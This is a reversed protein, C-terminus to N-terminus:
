RPDWEIIAQLSMDDQEPYKGLNANFGMRRISLTFYEREKAKGIKKWIGGVELKFGRPSRAFVRHTPAKENDSTFPIAEIELDREVTSILGKGEATEIDDSDFKIFNTLDTM